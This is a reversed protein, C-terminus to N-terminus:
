INHSLNLMHTNNNSKIFSSGCQEQNNLFSDFHIYHCQHYKSFINQHQKKAIYYFSLRELHQKFKINNCLFM